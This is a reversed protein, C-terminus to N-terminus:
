LIGENNPAPGNKDVTRERRERSPVSGAFRARNVWVAGPPLQLEEQTHYRTAPKPLPRLQHPPISGNNIDRM